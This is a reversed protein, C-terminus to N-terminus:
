AVGHAEEERPIVLEGMYQEFKTANFLTAPRLYEVMKEDGKWERTKKAIVQRCDMVTAGSKIRAIILKLNEEVPRYARGTKTNLFNLVELAQSKILTDSSNNASNSENKIILNNLSDVDLKGSLYTNEKKKDNEKENEKEKSALPKSSLELSSTLSFAEAYKKFFKSLFPLKPLAAYTDHIGKVRNDSPKLQHGIQTSAMEHVWIYESAEDYTCFNIECLTILAKTAENISIGTEHAIFTVPLYYIGIMNAHPNTFLYFAIVQSELGLSRLRKGEENIWFQPSIKAFERM